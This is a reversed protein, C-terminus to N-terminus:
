NKGGLAMEGRWMKGYERELNQVFHTFKLDRYLDDGIDPM